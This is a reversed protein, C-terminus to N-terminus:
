MRSFSHGGSKSLRLEELTPDWVIDDCMQCYLTGARSDVDSIPSYGTLQHRSRLLPDSGHSVSGTHSKRGM